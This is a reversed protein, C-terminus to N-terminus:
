DENPKFFMFWAFALLQLAVLCALAAQYAQPPYGDHAPWLNIIVGMGWQVGFAASFVMLNLATNVRGALASPFSQSMAAYCLVGSPGFFGFAAWMVAPPLAPNLVILAEALIFALMGIAAIRVLKVGRRTLRYAINGILIHGAILTGAILLLHTAVAPRSLGSVDKLWPGAWLTQVGILGGTSLMLLPAQNWFRRHAFISRLGALQEGFGGSGASSDHRPVLLVIAAAAITLAVGFVSFVTRWDTFQLATEVPVTATMAGLGGVAFMWGNVAPLKASPFWTVFTKLGSMLCAAVGLGMLARGVLLGTLSRSQAFVAVGAVAILLLAANVKRPEFRDLLLGVPLQFLAFILLYISTLLGLSAADLGFERILDPAIVANISRM